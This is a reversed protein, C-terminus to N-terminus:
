EQWVKQSFSYSFGTGDSLELEIDFWLTEQDFIRFTGIYYIADGERIERLSINSTQGVLSRQRATITAAVPTGYGGISQQLVSLNIFAQKGSRTIKYAQAVQPSLETTNLVIYHLEYDDFEVKQEAWALLSLAFLAAGAVFKKLM